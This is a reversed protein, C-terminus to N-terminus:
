IILYITKKLIQKFIKFTLISSHTKVTSKFAHTLSQFDAHLKFYLQWVVCLQIFSAFENYATLYTSRADRREVVRNESVQVIFAFNSLEM